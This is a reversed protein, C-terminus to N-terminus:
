RRCVSAPIHYRHATNSTHVLRSSPLTLSLEPWARAAVPEDQASQRGRHASQGKLSPVQLSGLHLRAGNAAHESTSVSPWGCAPFVPLRARHRVTM